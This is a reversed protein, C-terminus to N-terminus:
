CMGSVDTTKEGSRVRGHTVVLVDVISCVGGGDPRRPSQVAASAQLQAVSIPCPPTTTPIAVQAPCPMGPVGPLGLMDPLGSMGAIAEM